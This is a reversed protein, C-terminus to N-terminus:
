GGSTYLADMAACIAKADSGKSFAVSTQRIMPKALDGPVVTDPMVAYAVTDGLAVTAKMLPQTIKADAGAKAATVTNAETAFRSVIAPDYFATIFKQAADIKKNGNPSIWFGAGTYGKYATPKSYTSGAPVPLGGLTVHGVLAAPANAFAWSGASMIAAKGEYFAANMQDASYGETSDVFVGSDRYKTFLEIGKMANANGCFGGKGYVTKTEVPTMFSQVIQLFMKQGDWDSGGVIMPPIKAARLKGAAAILEDSTTPVKDVGAKKLLEMNYWVPWSFGAYPFGQARGDAGSWEKLAEPDIKDTLAWKDIYPAASVAAGNKVWNNSKEALNVIVVDAEKGGALSTEYIDPITVGAETINVTIGQGKLSAVVDALIKREPSSGSWNSLVNLTAADGASSGSKGDCASTGVAVAAVAAVVSLRKKLM